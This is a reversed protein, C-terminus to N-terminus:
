AGSEEAQLWKKIAEDRKKQLEKIDSARKEVKEVQELILADLEAQTKEIEEALEPRIRNLFSKEVSM